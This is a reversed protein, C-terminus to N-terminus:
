AYVDSLDEDDDNIAYAADYWGEREDASIEDAAPYCCSACVYGSIHLDAGCNRCTM